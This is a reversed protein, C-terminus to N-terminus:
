RIRRTEFRTFNSNGLQNESASTATEYPEAQNGTLERRTHYNGPAKRRGSKSGM